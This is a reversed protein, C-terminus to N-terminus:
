SKIEYFFFKVSTVMDPDNWHGPGSYKGILEQRDGFYNIISVVSNWSDEIDDYNRWLNCHKSILTFNPQFIQTKNFFFFSNSVNIM